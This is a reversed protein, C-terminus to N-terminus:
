LKQAPADQAAIGARRKVRKRVFYNIISGLGYVSLIVAFEFLRTNFRESSTRPYSYGGIGTSDFLLYAILGCGVFLAIAQKIDRMGENYFHKVRKM